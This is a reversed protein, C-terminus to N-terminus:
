KKEAKAPKEAKPAPAAKVDPGTGYSPTAPTAAKESRHEAANAQGAARRTAANEHAWASNGGPVEVVPAPEVPAPDEPAPEVPAPDEPAPEVPAPDEPAPEVPAPEVPAPEVPAPEVPDVTEAPAEDERVRSGVEAWVGDVPIIRRDFRAQCSTASGALWRGPVV